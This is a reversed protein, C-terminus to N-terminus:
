SGKSSDRLIDFLEMSCNNVLININSLDRSLIESRWDSAHVHSYDGRAEECPQLVVDWLECEVPRDLSSLTILLSCLWESSCEVKQLSICQLSAPLRLDFRNRYTGWLYLKTLKNLTHLIESALSVCDATRLGLIGIRLDRLIEFLEMSCNNVLININSLDRSLIESRLGSAHVHSYDGRAEECPQLVVNVLKCEVPRDLLSLAILLSCLWESSCEVEPLSICQLSAPLRLDFRDTYTGWLYLKTLKNLTHLIESALSVCDATRLDLIGISSDRLIEFLEMSSNKVLIEINFLDRLLMESRLDSAHIHCEDGNAEECPQLVVNWLECEVPHDLLSLTILLSCLWESSCKVEQLSICQLSAPLMLDFRDTYTGWLYLKTLKNLTHLIESALSVCDATRLDLIGISSDRLIEFLEMSCNNVLININSLDRSLIESRLETAHIHCYDGRAEECPQLVVNWLECKVPRDLVSLAILLSCLWEFSCEVEPLSICQLSAPLMLDCRGTYTGWLNLKTLKNLTHLIESALSVCDTTRLDLIGISSDRLIEFLEMSCNNVLLNINSLDRSLIESRLESAHVHSYDGRAEECPQLVVDLLECEVPHDLLSLAILLSCLWDSSCEVKQLSICQLSAPLRLDFRDTYTGWLYLKTLKNLTHLIESALSVCDATRLDLIGIRSDRLIEFLEMSCNNVLINIISLDRSLIESRLETAHVHSYDGRAEECPQLVVNWLECKVPHDLLSLTILLSCLWESSCKVEQLSICQLSAPLMLDFRDTYTGWLYLKTLKNLTHLIESALSVCDATRLDLIGISSDRLIEFLEMSCNNVLINSNSLDRSSIESRLESAHVHSYDGRAEECPQLVVNWLECEVHHDLLSLTILLSCLWEFSCEVKPLSICQLSAPLMLDCRGTYTGWLYLKTLKNLTHLIESALSVCDTTRLDLIGISSDRLIEFLEMSCNKVLININSLDRSLIESRWDSAHVHSYDGRAEECPQLVGDWLECKVPHHLLSLAILLSCLWDSSCEVKQLSICQLSAPLRLDFRDTYTGWLFLKTLKNLTNLIESVLSVCDDTRLDLIGISLDRLIEFLEMSSNKVLIEINSLDRSLIESRLETAHIYSYDGRAEECPQLVVNWLECKVPHDLLSLAILLSCLWESSCEVEPLSICQLSAPLMIDCRGTYTGRLFLKTLKNLTHLSESALSVCDATRLDLIGISSDRLIEFLEMSCNNVLLNINSLDRSLIESRLESAHEHSHDERAEECLQLVVGLLECKVPHHLLSLAILLSCLWDSSCEVEPLSICQLSAPLRLDFRDTYTGWLFLKTLKNLTHLIDPALSVCDATRLDLIGISLDRLIEFLEMSSNKVLIEINSLDRSLIESRLETAHIYSYDRRAEECPQLVVNWLECKVHHDLLSLVILLSCLWESSCEVEQLSICQMSAPLMLDCRGTYTGRLYLKTLKYFTHFIESALSLCDATILDLIGISSDRLIEFLEMSSNKVLIEINSLDRSLIESRLETAHVHSYDGRAEECPQLVVNWLECEVHHDLLSLVILLSCLWESSCEVEQLSICQMSAPLMLDCRGTYTGRLYLKTLKYLTHFIESALSLCDATILDLIGISSDRLIEFLEMSCNNVLLNINSLDRSLIESRLETAHIHCYDGRAEECPQLVVNWLECKVPRDLLSLAILLSCLWESSCEVEPLSIYQLSAPLMLDCRDTYTGWLSLKTLKNLTHLIESALSVCDTTRLDLIGISSDRLIEFLEMSSNKVLIEINFLDRLLMESRLDSAHIHCEDGNAEECPQLVVDWLECEVSHDLSSLTILLSCLWESSCEVEPLSICRLSAPLRLDCRGTYTGWLYLKTLKNLTHLIESALILDGATRASLKGISTGHLIGYLDTNGLKLNLCINTMDSLLLESQFLHTNCDTVIEFLICQIDHKLSALHVLLRRLFVDTCTCKCLSVGQITEPLVIDESFRSDEIKLFTLQSLSPLVCSFSSVDIKGTCHLEQITMQHLEKNIEPTVKTTVRKLSRKSHQLVKLIEDTQLFNTELILSRVSSKNYMLLEKLAKSDAYSLYISFAFDQCNLGIEKQGSTKAEICCSIIMRQYLVLLAFLFHADKAMQTHKSKVNKIKTYVDTQFTKVQEMDFNAQVYNSLGQNINELLEIDTLRNLLENAKKCDLGCLYIVTQSMELINYKTETQFFESLEQKSNAIHYAALFEQVTEHIFSFQSEQPAIGVSHRRTLVGAHLCFQLQELTLYKILERESFVLSKKSSFTFQFAVNALADFIDVREKIFSTNSLCQISHGIKFYGKKANAKKFLLDLLICNIECLSGKFANNNIWVNVLLVQLWPSTLFRMLQNENVYKKFETHTRDTGTQLSLIIHKTLEESDNIGEIEILRDIESDKIREDMMKWPRTTVLSVCKTHCNAILPVTYKNLDDTWENLGDMTVICTEQKMIQQLLLFAKIREDGTYILDIIQTKIMEIVERQGIADRLSIHFLFRFDRLTDIDSFTSVCNQNHLSVAECWDIALKILFTSKGTGPDGQIFVRNLKKDNYFIGRYQHITSNTKTRSGDKEINIPIMKPTVFIDWIPKDCGERLPSVSVTNMKTTYFQILNSRFDAKGREYEVQTTKNAAQQMRMIGDQLNYEIRKTSDQIKSELCQEADYRKREIHEVGSQTKSKLCRQGVHTQNSLRQVGVQTKKKIRQEGVRTKKKIRQELCTIYDNANALTREAEESFREGAEKAHTLTQYAEKLLEGLEKFSIRDNQLDRLRTCAHTASPDHQLCNPDALLTSLIQFYDQLDADTVKCDSTHRVDRGIQRVKELPCQKDPPPPSLCSSSLCTQFHLCNLMISIVGNFDSEQVSSVSNYGDPPLFCKGIEWYDQAWNEARTNRWSPGNYRHQLIINQKVHDCTPCPQPKQSKHFPCYSLKKRNCYPNTPCPILKEIQCNGCSRGVVAHVNQLQTDLFNTLGQKAVNLAISAKFWNTTEKDTFLNTNAAM